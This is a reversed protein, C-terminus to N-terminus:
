RRGHESTRHRTTQQQRREANRRAAAESGRRATQLAYAQGNERAKASTEMLQGAIEESQWGWSAAIMCWTFDAISQRTKGPQTQSPPAGDLCRQYDPWKRSSSSPRARAPSIRLPQAAPEPAAVLGLRELENQSTRQGPRADHIAVRPFDPAYKDKFNFSGAIRGAGSASPDAGAGKKLRRAFDKNEAEELAVWAQFNAPSTETILFVAPAIRPIQDAKLDDLQIFTVGQGHPRITISHQRAVAADLYDPMTRRLEAHSMSRRFQEKEGARTTWTVHFHTAGVSAFANLMTQAAKYGNDDSSDSVGAETNRLHISFENNSGIFIAQMAPRLTTARRKAREAYHSRLLRCHTLAKQPATLKDVVAM